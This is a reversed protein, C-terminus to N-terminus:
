WCVTCCPYYTAMERLSCPTYKSSSYHPLKFTGEMYLTTADAAFDMNAKRGFVLIYNPASEPGMDILLFREEVTVCM